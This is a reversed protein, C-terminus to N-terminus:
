SRSGSAEQVGPRATRSGRRLTTVAVGGLILLAAVGARSSVAYGLQLWALLAAFLPQLYIYITVMTPTSRALAWANLSYAVITPVAVIFALLWWGRPELLPIQQVLAGAGLPAFLLAGYTFLWAMFRLAGLELVINRSFVVYAAYSLSNLAVLIAGRDVQGARGLGILWLVGSLALVIGAGTRVSAAERRFLVALAAAFVPITASLLTVVFPSSVRLGALFLAQNAAVGLLALGAVIAHKKVPLRALPPAKGARRSSFVAAQFFLAAGVMRVMALAEPVIGEGGQARPLMALKAEVAQSAFAIQVILLAAHTAWTSPGRSSKARGDSARGDEGLGAKMVSSM